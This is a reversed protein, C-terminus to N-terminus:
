YTSDQNVTIVVNGRKHGTETYRHAEGISELPYIKDILPKIKGNEALQKLEKLNEQKEDTMSNVTVFKGKKTLCRKRVAAPIKGVADFIVDYILGSGAINEKTYDLVKDAGITKMLELNATSCVATVEAGYAKALQVGFSGVSGSAGYILVKQGKQVRARKMFVLATMGGIPLAAAEEPTLNAPKHGVVGTSWKEPLSIYEAYAGQKLGTTTGFVMDGPKYLKVKQGTQVVQGCFEYGLVPNKPKKFGFMLRILFTLVKSGPYEGKRIWIVGASVTSASVKVLFDHSGPVPRDIDSLELVEPAGYEKYIVAKM